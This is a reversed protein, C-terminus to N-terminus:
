SCLLVSIQERLSDLSAFDAVRFVNSSSPQSSMDNLQTQDLENGIGISVLRINQDKTTRAQDSTEFERVTPRGDTVLLGIRRVGGRAGNGAQFMSRMMEFGAPTNTAGKDYEIAGIHNLIEGKNTTYTNLDFVKRAQDSFLFAGIRVNGNSIELNQVLDQIFLLMTYFNDQGISGSTDIMFVLDTRVNCSRECNVGSRGSTCACTYSNLGSTCQGGSQCPNSDCERADNCIPDAINNILGSLDSFQDVFFVNASDPDNAIGRLEPKNAGSTVGIAFIHIGAARATRAQPLTDEKNVNSKGDTIIIAVNPSSGRDGNQSQFVSLRLLQLASATDTAGATYQVRAIAGLVDAKRSFDNLDFMVTAQSAFTMLAVRSAGNNINLEDVVNHVFKLTTEFDKQSLSGSSDVAFAIDANIACGRQCRKGSFGSPCECIYAGLRDYCTGGNLCPNVRCEDVDNCIARVINDQIPALDNFSNVTFVHDNDEDTAIGNLEQMTTEKGIGISFITAGSIRLELAEPLTRDYRVTSVGDTVVIVVKPVTIRAGRSSILVETRARRLADQTNTAGGTYQLAEIANVVDDVNSYSDLYFDINTNDNFSIAAFQNNNPGVTFKKVLDKLFTKLTEFDTQGISGSLDVLLAVDAPGPCTTECSAEVLAQSIQNLSEFNTVNFLHDRDPDTAMLRLEGENIETGVGIAFVTIGRARVDDTVRQLRADEKPNSEGDTIFIILNPANPRDGNAEQFMTNLAFELADSIATAALDGRIWTRITDQIDSAVYENLNVRARINEQNSFTMIGIRVLEEGINFRSVVTSLFSRMQLFSENDISGSEDVIFVIDAIEGCTSKCTKQVVEATIESLSATDEVDFYYADSTVISRLEAEDFDANKVGIGFQIMGSRNKIKQIAAPLAGLFDSSSKGDTICIGIDIVGDREGNGPAFLDDILQNLGGALNTSGRNGRNALLPDIKALIESKEYMENM